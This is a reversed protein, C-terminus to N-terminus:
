VRAFAVLNDLRLFLPMWSVQEEDMPRVARYGELFWQPRPDNFDFRDLRDDLLESSLANSVDIAFWSYACDDV